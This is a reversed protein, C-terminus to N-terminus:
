PFKFTTSSKPKLNCSHVWGLVEDRFTDFDMNFIKEFHSFTFFTWGFKTAWLAKMWAMIKYRHIFTGFHFTKPYKYYVKVIHQTM